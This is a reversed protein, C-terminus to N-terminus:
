VSKTRRSFSGLWSSIAGTFRQWWSKKKAAEKQAAEAKKKAEELRAKERVAKEEESYIRILIGEQELEQIVKTIRPM